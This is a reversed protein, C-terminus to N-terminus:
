RIRDDELLIEREKVAEELTSFVGKYIGDITLQYKGRIPTVCREKTSSDCRVRSNLTQERHTVWRCNDPSYNGDNDIRDLTLEDSYGNALSWEQFKKNSSLWASCVEIGRAGHNKYSEQKDNYCRTKMNSWISTLRPHNKEEKSKQMDTAHKKAKCQACRNIRGNRVRSMYHEFETGCKCRVLVVKGVERHDPRRPIEKLIMLDSKVGEKLPIM